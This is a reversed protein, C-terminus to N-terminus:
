TKAKAKDKGEKGKEKTEKAKDKTEPKDKATAPEKGEKEKGKEKGDAAGKGKTEAGEAGEEGAEKGEKGIVEPGEAAAAVEAEPKVEEEIHPLQVTAVAIDGPTLLTLKPDIKLDRVFLSDGINLATVDLTFAKVIDTPLCEVEVTRLLHELVGGQQTVGTPEGLLQIAVPVRLKRTM